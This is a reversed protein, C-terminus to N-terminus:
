RENKSEYGGSDHGYLIYYGGDNKCLSYGYFGQTILYKQTEVDNHDVAVSDILSSIPKDMDRHVICRTLNGFKDVIKKITFGYGFVMKLSSYNHPSVTGCFHRRQRKQLIEIGQNVMERVIGSQRYKSEVAILGWRAVQNLEQSNIDIELGLNEDHDGPYYLVFYGVMKNGTFAGLGFGNEQNSLWRYYNERTEPYYLDKRPMTEVIVNQVQLLEDVYEESLLRVELSERKCM